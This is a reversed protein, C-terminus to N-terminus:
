IDVGMHRLTDQIRTCPLDTCNKGDCGKGSTGMKVICCDRCTRGDCTKADNCSARSSHKDPCDCAQVYHRLHEMIIEPTARTRVSLEIM